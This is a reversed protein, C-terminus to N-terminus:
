AVVQDMKTFERSSDSACELIELYGSEDHGGILYECGEIKYFLDHEIQWETLYKAVPFDVFCEM